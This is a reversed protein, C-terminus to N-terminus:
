WIYYIAAAPLALLASDFRDLFGGHGPLVNGSDKINLQRKLLSEVLDGLTGSVTVVVALGCWRLLSLDSPKLYYIACAAAIALLGGGISGVWSKNPSIRPFLKYPIYRGLLSGVIYAGADSMWLFIFVAMIYIWDYSPTNSFSDYHVTFFPILAFPLAVYVLAAFSMAWNRLPDDCQRYLESIIIFLASIGLLPLMYDSEAQGISDLWSVSVLLFATLVVIPTNISTQYHKNLLSCFEGVALLAMAGYLIYATIPSAVTCGVLLVVYVISTLTRVIFNHM